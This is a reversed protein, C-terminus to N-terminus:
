KYYKLYFATLAADNNFVVGSIGDGMVRLLRCDYDKEFQEPSEYSKLVKSVIRMFKRNDNFEKTSM